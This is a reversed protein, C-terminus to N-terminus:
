TIVKGDKIVIEMNEKRLLNIDKSIDKSLVIMDAAKGNELTGVKDAIGLAEASYRTAALLTELTDVGAENVFTRIEDLTYEGFPTTENCYTDSALAISVGSEYAKRFTDLIRNYEKKQLSEGEIDFIGKRRLLEEDSYYDTWDLNVKFTPMLWAGKELFLEICEEDLEVGHLICKIGCRLAAKTGEISECHALVPIGAMNAEDCIAIIEEDTYIRDTDCSREQLGGGTTWVKIATCGERLRMRVGHRLNDVGDCPEGWPHNQRLFDVPFLGEPDVYPGGGGMAFGQGCPLMRPGSIEGMEILRKLYPGAMSVDCVTTIGHQLTKEAQKVAVMAQQMNSELIRDITSSGIMGGIHMHCDVIGPMIFKGEADIEEVDRTIEKEPGVYSIVGDTIELMIGTKVEATVGDFLMGNKLLLKEAM